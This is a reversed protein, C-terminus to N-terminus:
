GRVDDQLKKQAEMALAKWDELTGGVLPIMLVGSGTKDDAEGYMKKLSALEKLATNRAASPATRDFAVDIFGAMIRQPSIMKELDTEDTKLQIAKLIRQDSMWKGVTKKLNIQFVGARLAASYADRDVLFEDIFRLEAESLDAASAPSFERNESKRAM